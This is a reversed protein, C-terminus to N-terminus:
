EWYKGRLLFWAFDRWSAESPLSEAAVAADLYDGIMRYEWGNWGAVYPGPSGGETRRVEDMHDDALAQVFDLFATKTTAGNALGQLRTWSRKMREEHEDM